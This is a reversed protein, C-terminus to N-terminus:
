FALKRRPPLDELLRQITAELQRDLQQEEDAPLSRVVVDPIAGNLEMDVGGPITYWGRFPVRIRSGDLLTSSGTSIVGGATQVGVLAGRGLNKVAHSFIEANSFSNQNCIVAIPRTWSPAVLRDNPYGRSGARPITFAHPTRTLAALLLDTTWGGGNERM